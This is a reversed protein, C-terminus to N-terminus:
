SRILRGPIWRVFLSMALLEVLSQLVIVLAVAEWGTPLALALPLVVFSNRTAFSFALTRRAPVPLRFARGLVRGLAAATLAFIAFLLALWWFDDVMEPLASAQSAAIALIVLALLPVPLVASRAILRRVGRRVTYRRLWQALGLPLLILMVLATLMPQLLTPEVLVDGLFLWLYLPLTLLQLLLILPTAAVARAADGRGLQTFSIFWDTCPVLLVLLVGLRIAPDLPLASLATGVLLPLLLFNGLCLALMFRGDRVAGALRQLPIQLFTALLLAALLPWIVGELSAAADPRIAALLLGALVALLYIWVQHRELGAHM